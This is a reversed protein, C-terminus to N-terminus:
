SGCPCCYDAIGAPNAGMSRCGAPPNPIPGPGVGGCSAVYESAGCLDNCPANGSDSCHPTGDTECSEYVDGPLNCAILARAAHCTARSSADGDLEPSWTCASLSSGKNAVVGGDATKCVGNVCTAGIQVATCESDTSCTVWNTNTGELNTNTSCSAAMATLALAFFCLRVPLFILRTNM